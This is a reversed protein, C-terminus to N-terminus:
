ASTINALIEMALKSQTSDGLSALELLHDQYQVFYQENKPMGQVLLLLTKYAKDSVLSKTKSAVNASESLETGEEQHSDFLLGFLARVIRTQAVIITKMRVSGLRALNHLTFLTLGRIYNDNAFFLLEELRKYFSVDIKSIFNYNEAVLSLKMFAELALAIVHTNDSMLYGFLYALVEVNNETLQISPALNMITELADTALETDKCFLLKFLIDMFTTHSTLYKDNDQIYSINIFMKSAKKLLNLDSVQNHVSFIDQTLDEYMSTGSKETNSHDEQSIKPAM